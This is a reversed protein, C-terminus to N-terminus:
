SRRGDQINIAGAPVYAKPGSLGDPSRTEGRKISKETEDIEAQEKAKDAVYYDRPKRLLITKKGTYRDAIREHGTGLSMDKAERPGDLPVLEWDDQVTLSHMRGPDDNVWRYSYNPDMKTTVSLNRRRGMGTDERRRRQQREQEIRPSPAPTKVIQNM